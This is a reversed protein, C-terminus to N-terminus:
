DVDLQVDKLDQRIVFFSDCEEFTEAQISFVLLHHNVRTFLPASQTYHSAKLNSLM